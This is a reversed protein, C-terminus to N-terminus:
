VGYLGLADELSTGKEHKQLLRLHALELADEMDEIWRPDVLSAVPIGGKELTIQEGAVVRRVVAGLNIRAETIPMTTAKKKAKAM